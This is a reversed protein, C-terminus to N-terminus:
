SEIASSILSKLLLFRLTTLMLRRHCCKVLCLFSTANLKIAATKLLPQSWKLISVLLLVNLSSILSSNVVLIGEELLPLFVFEREGMLSALKELSGRGWSKELGESFTKAFDLNWPLFVESM